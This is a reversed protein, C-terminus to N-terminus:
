FYTMLLIHRKTMTDIFYIITKKAKLVIDNFSYTEKDNHRCFM